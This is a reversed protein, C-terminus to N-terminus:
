RVPRPSLARRSTVRSRPENDPAHFAGFRCANTHEARGGLLVGTIVRERGAKRTAARARAAKASVRASSLFVSPAGGSAAFGAPGTLKRFSTAGTSTCFQMAQWLALFDSLLYVM